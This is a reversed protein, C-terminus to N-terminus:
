LASTWFTSNGPIRIIQSWSSQLGCDATALCTSVSGTYGGIVFMNNGFTATDWWSNQGSYALVTWNAADACNTNDYCRAIKGSQGVTIFQGNGYVVPRWVTGSELSQSSTWNSAETCDTNSPCAAVSGTTGSIIFQNEGRTIGYGAVGTITQATKWNQSLGCDTTDRCSSIQGNVNTTIFLGKTHLLGIWTGNQGPIDIVDSWNSGVSCDNAAFCRSVSGNGSGRSGAAIFQGNGYQSFYWYAGKVFATSWDASKSCDLDDKCTSITGGQGTTVFLGKGHTIGWWYGSDSTGSTGNIQIAASWNAVQSCDTTYYCTSILGNIGGLIFRKKHELSASIYDYTAKSSLFRDSNVGQEYLDIEDLIGLNTQASQISNANTGGKNIGLVSQSISANAPFSGNIFYTICFFFLTGLVGIKKLKSNRFFKDRFSNKRYNLNEFSIM